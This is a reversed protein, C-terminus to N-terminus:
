KRHHARASKEVRIKHFNYSKKKKRRAMALLTSHTPEVQCDESQFILEILDDKSACAGLLKEAKLGKLKLNLGLFKNDM